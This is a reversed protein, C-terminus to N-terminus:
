DIVKPVLFLGREAAPANALNAERRDTETVQDDRLALAIEQIMALPHALPEVGSTDQASLKDALDMIGNIQQNLAQAQEAPLKLRSLTAIRALQEASLSMTFSRNETKFCSGRILSLKLLFMVPVTCLIPIKDTIM